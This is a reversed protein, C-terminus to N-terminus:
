SLFDEIVDDLHIPSLELHNCLNVLKMVALRNCSLNSVTRTITAVPELHEVIAIGYCHFPKEHFYYTNQVLIYSHPLIM